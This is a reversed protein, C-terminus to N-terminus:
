WDIWYFINVSQLNFLNYHFCWVCLTCRLRRHRPRSWTGIFSSQDCPRYSRCYYFRRLSDHLISDEHYHLLQQRYIESPTHQTTIYSWRVNSNCQVLLPQFVSPPCLTEPCILEHSFFFDLLTSGYGSGSWRHWADQYNPHTSNSSVTSLIRPM